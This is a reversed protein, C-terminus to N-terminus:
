AIIKVLQRLSESRVTFASIVSMSIVKQKSLNKVKM